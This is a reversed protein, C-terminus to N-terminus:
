FETLPTFVAGEAQSVGGYLLDTHRGEAIYHRLVQKATVPMPLTELQDIAHWELRGENSAAPDFGERLAAFFYFNQRIEGSKLRLTVYRLSLGELDAATLGTEERLERLICARASHIEEPEMHGGAAGTYSNGVVRSGMRYLLLVQDGRTLYIATMPRLDNPVDDGDSKRYPLQVSEAFLGYRSALQSIGESTYSCGVYMCFNCGFHIFLRRSSLRCLCKGRFVDQLLSLLEDADVLQGDLWPFGPALYEVHSIVLPLARERNVLACVFGIHRAEAREFDVFTFNGDPFRRGIDDYSTWEDKTYVGNVRYQPDYKSVRYYHM